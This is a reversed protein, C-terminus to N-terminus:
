KETFIVYWSDDMKLLWWLDNGKQLYGMDHIM